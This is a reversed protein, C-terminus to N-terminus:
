NRRKISTTTSYSRYGQTNPDTKSTRATLTIDIRQVNGILSTSNNNSDFGSFSVATIHDALPQRDEAGLAASSFRLIYDSSSWSFIRINSDNMSTFGIKDGGTGCTTNTNEMCNLSSMNRLERVIFDLASRANQQMEVELDQSIQSKNASAFLSYIATLLVGLIVIGVLIEVLSFGQDTKNKRTVKDRFWRKIIPM